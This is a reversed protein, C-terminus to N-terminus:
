PTQAKFFQAVEAEGIMKPPEPSLKLNLATIAMGKEPQYVAVGWRIFQELSGTLRMRNAYVTCFPGTRAPQLTQEEIKLGATTASSQATKQLASAPNGESVPALYKQLWEIKPAWEDKQSVWTQAELLEDSVRVLNRRNIRDLNLVFKLVLLHLGVGVAM